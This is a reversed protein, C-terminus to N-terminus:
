SSATPTWTKWIRMDGMSKQIESLGDTYERMRRGNRKLSMVSVKPPNSVGTGILVKGGENNEAEDHEHHNGVKTKASKQDRWMRGFWEELNGALTWRWQEPVSWVGRVEPQQMTIEHKGYYWRDALCREQDDPVMIIESLNERENLSWLAHRLVDGDGMWLKRDLALYRLGQLERREGQATLFKLLHRSQFEPGLYMIDHEWSVYVHTPAYPTAQPLSVRYVDMRRRCNPNAPHYEWDVYRQGKMRTAASVGIRVQKYIRRAEMRSEKCVHFIAPLYHPHVSYKIPAYRGGGWSRIEVVRRHPAALSWIRIRLEAPLLPFLTFTVPQIYGPNLRSDAPKLPIDLEPLTYKVEWPNYSLNSGMAADNPYM